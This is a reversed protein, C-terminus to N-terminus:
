SLNGVNEITQNIMIDKSSLFDYFLELKYSFSCIKLEFIIMKSHFKTYSQMFICAFMNINQIKKLVYSIMLMVILM